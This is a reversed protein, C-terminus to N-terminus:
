STQLQFNTNATSFKHKCNFIQIQMDPRDVETGDENLGLVREGQLVTWSVLLADTECAMKRAFHRQLKHQLLFVNIVAKQM